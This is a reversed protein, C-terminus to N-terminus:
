CGDGSVTTAFKETGDSKKTAPWSLPNPVTCGRRVKCKAKKLVHNLGRNLLFVNDDM